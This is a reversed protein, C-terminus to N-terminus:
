PNDGSEAKKKLSAEQDPEERLQSPVLDVQIGPRQKTEHAKQGALPQTLEAKIGGEQAHM